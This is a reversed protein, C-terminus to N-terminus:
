AGASEMAALARAARNAAARAGYLRACVSTLIETVDPVLDDDAEAPDAVLLRRGSAAQASFSVARWCNFFGPGHNPRAAM